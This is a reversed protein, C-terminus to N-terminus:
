KTESNQELSELIPNIARFWVKPFFSILIMLPYGHPLELKQIKYNVKCDHNLHHSYHDGVNFLVFYDLTTKSNWVCMRDKNLESGYHQIYQVTEIFFHAIISQMILFVLGSTELYHYIIFSLILFLLASLKYTSFFKKQHFLLRVKFIFNQYIYSWLSTNKRAVFYKSNVQLEGHHVSLHNVFFDVNFNLLFILYSSIKCLISKKHLMEHAYSTAIASIMGMTFSYGILETDISTKIYIHIFIAIYSFILSFLPLILISSHPIYDSDISFYNKFQHITPLLNDTFIGFLFLWKPLSWAWSSYSISDIQIIIWPSLCLLFHLFYQLEVIRM